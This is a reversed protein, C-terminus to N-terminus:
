GYFTSQTIIHKLAWNNVNCLLMNSLAMLHPYTSFAINTSSKYEQILQIKSILYLFKSYHVWDHSEPDEEKERFYSEGMKTAEKHKNRHLTYIGIVRLRQPKAKHLLKRTPGTTCDGQDDSSPAGPINRTHTIHGEQQLQTKIAIPGNM